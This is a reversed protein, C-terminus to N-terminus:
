ETRFRRESSIPKHLRSPYYQCTSEYPRYTSSNETRLRLCRNQNTKAEELIRKRRAERESKDNNTNPTKIKNSHMTAKAIELGNYNLRSQM